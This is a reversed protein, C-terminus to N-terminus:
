HSQHGGPPHSWGSTPTPTPAPRQVPKRVSAPLHGTTTRSRDAHQVTAPRSQAPRPPDCRSHQAIAPEAILLAAPLASLRPVFQM